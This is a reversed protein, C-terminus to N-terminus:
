ADGTTIGADLDEAMASAEADVAGAVESLATGTDPNDAPDATDAPGLMAELQDDTLVVDAAAYTAVLLRRRLDREALIREKVKEKGVAIREGTAVEVYSAGARTVAGAKEAAELLSGAIDPGRDFFLEYTCRKFPPAVKNKKVFVGVEQGVVDNGVKIQKSPSSRVEVRLSAYFPLARGGTTREPNGYAGPDMRIQNVFILMTDTHEAVPVLRRVADSMFKAHRGLRNVEGIQGEVDDPPLLAAVSDVVVVDFAQSECMKQVMQMATVGDDPQAVVMQDPNVGFTNVAWEPSFAQEVDVYGVFGGRRQAQASVILALASKGSSEPGFLEIIRGRPFGGVGLAIDLSPIGTPIVDVALGKDGLRFLSGPQEKQATDVFDNFIRARAEFTASTNSM